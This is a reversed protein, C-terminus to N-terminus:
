SIVEERAGNAAVGRTVAFQADMQDWGVNLTSWIRGDVDCSAGGNAVVVDAHM